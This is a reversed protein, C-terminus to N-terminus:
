RSSNGTAIGNVGAKIMEHQFSIAAQLALGDPPVAFVARSGQLNRATSAFADLTPVAALETKVTHGTPKLAGLGTQDAPRALKKSADVLGSRDVSDAGDNYDLGAHALAPVAALSMVYIPLGAIALRLGDMAGPKGEARVSENKRRSEFNMQGASPESPPMQVLKKGLDVWGLHSAKMIQAAM